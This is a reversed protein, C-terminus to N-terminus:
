SERFERLEHGGNLGLRVRNCREGSLKSLLLSGSLGCGIGSPERCVEQVEGGRRASSSGVVGLTM